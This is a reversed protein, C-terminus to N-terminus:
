DEAIKLLYRRLIELCTEIFVRVNSSYLSHEVFANALRYPKAPDGSALPRSLPRFASRSTYECISSLVVQEKRPAGPPLTLFPPLHLSRLGRSSGRCPPPLCGAKLCCLFPPQGTSRLRVVAALTCHLELTLPGAGSGRAKVLQAAWEPGVGRGFTAKAIRSRGQLPQVEKWGQGDCGRTALM